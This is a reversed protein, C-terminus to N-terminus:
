ESLVSVDVARPGRATMEAEFSVEQDARLERLPSRLGTVHCFYSGGDQGILFGFGRDLHWIKVFGLM